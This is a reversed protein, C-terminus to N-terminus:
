HEGLGIKNILLLVNQPKSFRFANIGAILNGAYLQSKLLCVLRRFYETKVKNKMEVYMLSDKQLVGLYKYGEEDVDKMVNGNPLELGVKEKRKGQEVSLVACKSMGFEMKIDDYGKGVGVLEELMTKNRAYLKLDDM